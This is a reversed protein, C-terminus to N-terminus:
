DVDNNFVVAELSSMGWLNEIIQLRTENAVKIHSMGGKLQLSSSVGGM